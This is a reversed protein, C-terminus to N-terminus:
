IVKGEKEWKVRSAWDIERHKGLIEEPPPCSAEVAGGGSAVDSPLNKNCPYSPLPFPSTQLM